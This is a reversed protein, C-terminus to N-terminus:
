FHMGKTLMHYLNKNALPQTEHDTKCGALRNNFLRRDHTAYASIYIQLFSLIRSNDMMVSTHTHKNLFKVLTHEEFIEDHEYRKEHHNDRPVVVEDVEYCKERIPSRCREKTKEKTKERDCRGKFKEKRKFEREFELNFGHEICHDDNEFVPDNRRFEPSCKDDQRFERECKDDRRFERECEDQRFERECKDDQRFERECKDDQRFERECKDDQRFERECKDARRFERECEDDQRFEPDCKNRHSSPHLTTTHGCNNDILPSDINEDNNNSNDGDCDDHLDCMRLCPADSNWLFRSIGCLATIITCFSAKNICIPEGCPLYYPISKPPVVKTMDIDMGDISLRVIFQVDINDACDTACNNDCIQLSDCEHGCKFTGAPFLMSMITAFCRSKLLGEIMQAIALLGFTCNYAINVVKTPNFLPSNPFSDIPVNAVAQRAADCFALLHGYLFTPVNEHRATHGIKIVHGSASHVNNVALISFYDEMLKDYTDIDVFTILKLICAVFDIMQTTANHVDTSTVVDSLVPFGHDNIKTRTKGYYVGTIPSRSSNHLNLLYLINFLKTDIKLIEIMLHLPNYYPQARTVHLTDVDHDIFKTTKVKTIISQFVKINFNNYEDGKTDRITSCRTLTDLCNIYTNLDNPNYPAKAYEISNTGCKSCCKTGANNVTGCNECNHKKLQMCDNNCYPNVGPPAIKKGFEYFFSKLDDISKIINSSVSNTELKDEILEDLDEYGGVVHDYLKNDCKKECRDERRSEGMDDYRNERRFENDNECKFERNSPRECRNERKFSREDCTENYRFENYREYHEKRKFENKDERRFENDRECHDKRRFENKDECRFENDRECHDKRRFENKDECRFENDRECHEKRKFENKDERRFERVDLFYAIRSGVDNLIHLFETVDNNLDGSILGIHTSNVIREAKEIEHELHREARRGLHIDHELEREVKHKLRLDYELDREAKHKLHLDRELNREAKYKLNLDQELDREAKHKLHLDQELNREVKCKLHLDRELNREIREIHGIPYQEYYNVDREFRNDYDLGRELKHLKNIEEIEESRGYNLKSTDFYNRFEPLVKLHSRNSRDVRKNSVFCARGTIPDQLVLAPEPQEGCQNSILAPNRADTFNRHTSNRLARNFQNNGNKNM